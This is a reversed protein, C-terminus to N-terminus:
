YKVSDDHFIIVFEEMYKMNYDRIEDVEWELALEFNPKMYFILHARVWEENDDMIHSYLNYGDLVMSSDDAPHISLFFLPKVVFFLVVLVFCFISDDM